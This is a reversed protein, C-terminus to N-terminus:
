ILDLYEQAKELTTLKQKKMPALCLSPTLNKMHNSVTAEPTRTPTSSGPEDLWPSVTPSPDAKPTVLLPSEIQEMGWLRDFFDIEEFYQLQNECMSTVDCDYKYM